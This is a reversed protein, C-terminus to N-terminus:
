PSFVLWPTVFRCLTHISVVLQGNHLCRVYLDLKLNLNSTDILRCFLGGIVAVSGVFASTPLKSLHISAPMTCCRYDFHQSPTPLQNV